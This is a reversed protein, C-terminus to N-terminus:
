ANACKSGSCLSFPVCGGGWLGEQWDTDTHLFPKWVTSTSSLPSSDLSRNNVLRKGLRGCLLRYSQPHCCRSYTHHFIAFKYYLWWSFIPLRSKMLFSGVSTSLPEWAITEGQLITTKRHGVQTIRLIISETTFLCLCHTCFHMICIKFFHYIHKSKCTIIIKVSM